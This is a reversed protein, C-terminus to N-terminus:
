VKLQSIESKSEMNEVQLKKFNEYTFVERFEEKTEMKMKKIFRQEHFVGLIFTALRFIVLLGAIETLLNLMTKSKFTVTKVVDSVGLGPQIKTDLDETSLSSIFLKEKYSGSSSYLFSPWIRDDYTVHM